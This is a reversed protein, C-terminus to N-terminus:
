AQLPTGYIAIPVLMNNYSASEASGKMVNLFNIVTASVRQIARRTYNRQFDTLTAATNIAFIYRGNAPLVVYSSSMYGTPSEINPLWKIRIVKYDALTPITVNQANFNVSPDPNEWLLTEEYAGPVNVNATAYQAVDVTGNETITIEGAPPDPIPVAVEATAYEAVDHTGNETIEITGAPPEPTPVNVVAEAYDAVDYTGNQDIEVSGSATHIEVNPITVTVSMTKKAEANAEIGYKM